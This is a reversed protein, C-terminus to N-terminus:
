IIGSVLLFGGIAVTITVLWIRWDWSFVKQGDLPGFPILNFIALWGNVVAAFRFVPNQILYFTSAFLFLLIINFVPGALGIKGVEHRHPRKFVFYASFVVAGPAAFIMRGQTAFAFLIALLLGQYWMKYEAFFGFKRAVFKHSLEHGIFGLGIVFLSTLILQPNSIFDPYAFVIALVLVSIIIDRIEIKSFVKKKMFM